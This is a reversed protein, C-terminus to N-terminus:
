GAIETVCIYSVGREYDTADSDLVSRNLYLTGANYSNVAVKYTVQSTTNPSDFYQYVASAPTSAKDDAYYATSGASITSRRNSGVVPAKLVTSDRMFMWALLHDPNSTMEFFVHTQILIKSSTSTPTINVTLDSLSSDTTASLSYSTTGTYQTYQVQIIGGQPMIIKNGATKPALENVYLKSM